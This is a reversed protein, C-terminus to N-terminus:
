GVWWTIGQEICSPYLTLSDYVYPLDDNMPSMFKFFEWNSYREGRGLFNGMPLMDDKRHGQCSGTVCTPLEMGTVDGWQCIKHTDSPSMGDHYYDWESVLMTDNQYAMLRKLQLYRDALGHIPWFTPDYPAASTFMEGAHGVHCLAKVVLEYCAEKGSCGFTHFNYWNNFLGDSLNFLGTGKLFNEYSGFSDLYMSPCTCECKEAPTDDSCLEPCRIFGQRWLWKSALLFDGGNTTSINYGASTNMYWQGGIMIHVPGHLEGNLENFYRGLSGYNWASYFEVCGPLTWGGDKEGYVYRHRLVYPTPNTNWPSRLLAYPNRIGLPDAEKGVSLYAWRGKSIVHEKTEPSAAGFWSPHFIKSDVWDDLYYVDQTYDWYPITVTQEISQLSQEMELTFAIHHTMIGADDHWHDCMKDASGLLHEAVLRHISRFHTGYLQEGEEQGTKYAKELTDFFLQRASNDLLRIERRVFKAMVEYIVHNTEEGRIAQPGHAICTVKLKLDHWGTQLFIMEITSGSRSYHTDGTTLSWHYDCREDSSSSLEIRTRQFVEVLNDWKYYNDGLPRGSDREYSNSFNIMPTFVSPDEVFSMSAQTGSSFNLKVISIFSFLLAFAAIVLLGTKERRPSETATNEDDGQLLPEKEVNRMM